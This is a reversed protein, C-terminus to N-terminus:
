QLIGTLYEMSKKKEAEIRDDLRQYDINKRHCFREELEGPEVLRDATQFLEMLHEMRSNMSRRDGQCSRPFIWFEKHFMASFVAAHFSDTMVCESHRILSLFEEPGADWIQVDGFDKDCRRYESLLYPICVLTLRRRVSWRRVAERVSRGDGLLYAFVYPQEVIRPSGLREFHSPELLFVPDLVVPIRRGLLPELLRKGQEERVSVGDLARVRRRIEEREWPPIEPLPMSAGYSAKKKGEPVFDLWYVPDFSGACGMNWIQDSGCLFLDFRDATEAITRSDYTKPTHPIRSRRFEGMREERKRIKKTIGPTCLGVGRKWLAKATQCLAARIAALLSEQRIKRSFKEKLSMSVPCYDITLCDYGLERVKQNLAYAQLIGGYNNNEHYLTM